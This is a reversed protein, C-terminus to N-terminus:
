GQEIVEDSLVYTIEYNPNDQRLYHIRRVVDKYTFESVDNWEEGTPIYKWHIKYYM